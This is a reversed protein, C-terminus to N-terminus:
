HLLTCGCRREAVEYRSGYNLLLQATDSLFTNTYCAFHLATVGDGNRSHMDCGRVLMAPVLEATSFQCALM